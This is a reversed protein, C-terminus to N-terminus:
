LFELTETPLWAENSRAMLIPTIAKGDFQSFPEVISEDYKGGWHEGIGSNNPVMIPNRVSITPTNWLYPYKEFTFAEIPISANICRFPTHLVGQLLREPGTIKLIAGSCLVTDYKMPQGDPNVGTPYVRYGNTSGANNTVYRDGATLSNFNKWHEQETMNPTRAVNALYWFWQITEILIVPVDDNNNYARYQITDPIGAREGPRFHFNSDTREKLSLKSWGTLEYTSKVRALKIPSTVIQKISGDSFVDIRM